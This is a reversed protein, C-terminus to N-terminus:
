CMMTGGNDPNNNKPKLIRKPKVRGNGNDTIMGNIGAPDAKGGHQVANIINGKKDRSNVVGFRISGDYESGGAVNNLAEDDIRKMESM